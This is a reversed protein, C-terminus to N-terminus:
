SVISGLVGRSIPLAPSQCGTTTGASLVPAGARVGEVKEISALPSDYPEVGPNLFAQARLLLLSLPASVTAKLQCLLCFGPVLWLPAQRGSPSKVCHQCSTLRDQLLTLCHHM